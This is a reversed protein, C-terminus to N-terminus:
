ILCLEFYSCERCVALRHEIPPPATQEIISAIDALMAELQSEKEATLTLRETRKLKPYNIEGTIGDIGKQKLFYLYYYVQWVHGEKFSPSKKIEHLVNNRLDFFDIKIQDIEIEKKEREYGTEHIVKGQYVSDSEHECTIHRSFFWLQRHCHVYYNVQTGTVHWQEQQSM